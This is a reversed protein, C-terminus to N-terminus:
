QYKTNLDGVVFQPLSLVFDEPDFTKGVSNNILSFITKIARSAEAM